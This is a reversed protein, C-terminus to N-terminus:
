SFLQQLKYTSILSAAQKQLGKIEFTQNKRQCYRKWELLLSLGASDIRQVKELNIVFASQTLKELQAVGAQQLEFVTNFTMQGEVQLGSDSRSIISDTVSM